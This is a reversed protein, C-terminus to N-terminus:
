RSVAEEIVRRHSIALVRGRVDTIRVQEDPLDEFRASTFNAVVDPSLYHTPDHIEYLLQHRLTDPSVRGPYPRAMGLRGRCAAIM